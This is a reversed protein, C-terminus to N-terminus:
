PHAGAPTLPPRRRRTVLFVLTLMVGLGAVVKGVQGFLQQDPMPARGAGLFSSEEPTLGSPHSGGCDTHYYAIAGRDLYFTWPHGVRNATGQGPLVTITQEATGKYVRDVHVRTGLDSDAQIVGGVVVQVERALDRADRQPCTLASAPYTGLLTTLALSLACAVMLSSGSFPLRM